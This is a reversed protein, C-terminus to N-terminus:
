TFTLATKSGYQVVFATNAIACILRAPLFIGNVANTVVNGTVGTTTKTSTVPSTDAANMIIYQSANQNIQWGGIATDLVSIDFTDGVAALVPLTFQLTSAGNVFYGNGEVLSTAGTVIQWKSGSTSTTGLQGSLTDITVLQPNSVTNANIGQIFCKSQLGGIRIVDSEGAVGTVGRGILINDSEAGNYANGAGSGLACNNQGSVLHSLSGDGISCNQNGSTLSGLASTGIAINAFTSVANQLTQAGFACNDFGDTILNCSNYGIACNQGTGSAGNDVNQLSGTGIAINAFSDTLHNLTNVGVGINDTGFASATLSGSNKGVFTNNTGFNSIWRTSNFKIVGQTASSNTNPLNFNGATASIDGTQSTIFGSTTGATFSGSISVTNNLNVTVVNTAGSTNINSGGVISLIGAVPSANGSDTLYIDAFTGAPLVGMQGSVSDITVVEPNGVTNGLIGAIYCQNQQNTGTGQIGIRLINNDNLVGLSGLLINSSETTTYNTGANEGIVLNNGGTNLNNLANIGIGINAGGSGNYINGASNGILINNSCSGGASPLVGYGILINAGGSTITNGNAVGLGINSNGTDVNVLSQTGIAINGTGFNLSQLCASGIAINDTAAATILTFNGAAEGIFVNNTGFNHIFRVGGFNIVGETGSSNTNALNFNGADASIDGTVATIFGLTTGATFSGSISVIDDLIVEVTNGSAATHINASGVINLIGGSPVASGTDGDFQDATSGSSTITLTHTAANGTVTILGAGVVNINGLTPPVPGGTNGTLTLVGGSPSIGNFFVGSQSM